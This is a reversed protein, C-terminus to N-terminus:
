RYVLAPLSRLSRMNLEQLEPLNNSNIKKFEALQTEVQTIQEALKEAEISLFGSTETAARTRYKLNENLYLSVLENAVQQALKPSKSSYSLGIHLYV